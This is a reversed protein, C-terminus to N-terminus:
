CWIQLLRFRELKPIRHLHSKGHCSLCRGKSCPAVKVNTIRGKESQSHIDQSAIGRSVNENMTHNDNQFGVLNSKPLSRLSSVSAQTSFTLTTLQSNSITNSHTCNPIDTNSIGNRRNEQDCKSCIRGTTKPYSRSYPKIRKKCQICVISKGM